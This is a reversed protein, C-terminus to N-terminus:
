IVRQSSPNNQDMVLLDKNGVVPTNATNIFDQANMPPQEM